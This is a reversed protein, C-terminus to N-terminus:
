DGVRRPTWARRGRDPVDLFALQWRMEEESLPFIGEPGPRLVLDPTLHAMAVQLVVATQVTLGAQWALSVIGKASRLACAREIVAVPVGAKVSLMATAQRNANRRLADLIAEDGLKGSQSLALAHAHALRPGEDAAPPASPTRPRALELTSRVMQAIKPDIDPRAALTELLFGTVIESLMRQARPPLHPRNVLPAQWDTQEESQAALADLTAERIQATPNELLARIAAFNSTGVIADSVTADIKPRNAVAIITSPPPGTAILTVLDEQTLMPSFRIVPECVMVAPDHALRLVIERPGDPLHKVAEALSIRVRLAADAVMATLNAVADRQVRQRADDTLSPTLTSLKNRLITRVRADTDAALLASVQYPLAPNLALSARVTVSPDNALVLLVEPSTNASAGQRVRTAEDSM